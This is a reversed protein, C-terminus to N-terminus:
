PLRVTREGHHYQETLRERSIMVPGCDCWSWMEDDAMPAELLDVLETPASGHRGTDVFDKSGHAHPGVSTWVVPGIATDYVAAVHHSRACQVSVRQADAQSPRLADFAARARDHRDQSMTRAM